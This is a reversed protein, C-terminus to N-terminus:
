TGTVKVGDDEIFESKLGEEILADVADGNYLGIGGKLAVYLRQAWEYVSEHQRDAWQSLCQGDVDCAERSCSGGDHAPCERSM